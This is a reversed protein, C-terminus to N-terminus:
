YIDDNDNSDGEKDKDNINDMLEVEYIDVMNRTMSYILDRNIYLRLLGTIKAMKNRIIEDQEKEYKASFINIATLGNDNKHNINLGKSLLLVAINFIVDYNSLTFLHMLLNEGNNIITNVNFRNDLLNVISWYLANNKNAGLLMDNHIRIYRQFRTESLPAM